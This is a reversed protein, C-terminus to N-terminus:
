SREADMEDLLSRLQPLLAPVSSRVASLVLGADIGFYYHIIKDRM